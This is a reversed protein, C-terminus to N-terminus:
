TLSNFSLLEKPLSDRLAKIANHLLFGINSVSLGTKDSIEQYSLGQQFKLLIVKRQNGSLQNIHNLLEEKSESQITEQAPTTKYHLNSESTQQDDTFSLRKDKRIIDLARNKCVTYLWSKLNKQLKAPEQKYLRIFTDQVVDKAREIDNTYKVAHAILM